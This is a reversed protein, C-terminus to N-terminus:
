ATEACNGASSRNPNVAWIRRLATLTGDFIASPAASAERLSNECKRTIARPEKDSSSVCNRMAWSRPKQSAASSILVMSISNASSAPNNLTCAAVFDPEASEERAACGRDSSTACAVSRAQSHFTAIVFDQADLAGRSSFFDLLREALHRHFAMRITAGVVRLRLVTELFGLFGPVHQAVRLPAGLVVAEAVCRELVAHAAAATAGPKAVDAVDEAVDKGVDEAAATAGRAPRVQAVHHLEIQLFGDGADLLLDFDGRKDIAM